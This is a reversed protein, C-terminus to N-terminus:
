FLFHKRNLYYFGYCMLKVGTKEAIKEMIATDHQQNKHLYLVYKTGRTKVIQQLKLIVMDGSLDPLSLSVMALDPPDAIIKEVGIDGSNSVDAVYGVESLMNSLEKSFVEDEDVIAIKKVQSEQSSHRKNLIVAIEKLLRSAEFPKNLVGDVHMDKLVELLDLRATVILVPYRPLGDVGCIYQYFEMGSMKPMVLDLLILDPKIKDLKKLADFGDFSIVPNYGNARLNIKYLKALGRDDELVLITNEM